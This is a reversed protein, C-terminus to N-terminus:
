EQTVNICSWLIWVQTKNIQIPSETYPELVVKGKGESLNIIDLEGSGIYFTYSEDYNVWREQYVDGESAPTGMGTLRKVYRKAYGDSNVYIGALVEEGQPLYYLSTRGGERTTIAIPIHICEGMNYNTLDVPTALNFNMLRAPIGLNSCASDIDDPHSVVNLISSLQPPIDPISMQSSQGYTNKSYFVLGGIIVCLFLVVFVSYLRKFNYM